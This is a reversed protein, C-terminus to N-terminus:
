RRGWSRGTCGPQRESSDKAIEEYLMREFDGLEERNLLRVGGNWVVRVIQTVEDPCASGRTDQSVESLPVIEAFSLVNM